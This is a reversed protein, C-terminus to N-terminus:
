ENAEMKDNLKVVVKKIANMPNKGSRVDYVLGCSDCRAKQYGESFSFKTSGCECKKFGNVDWLMDKHVYEINM